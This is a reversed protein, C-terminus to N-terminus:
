SIRQFRHIAVEIDREGQRATAFQTSCSFGRAGMAEVFNPTDRRRPNSILVEGGPAILGPALKALAPVNREEYLVDAALV